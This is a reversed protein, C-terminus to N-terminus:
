SFSLLGFAHQVLPFRKSVCKVVYFKELDHCALLYESDLWYVPERLINTCHSVLQDRNMSFLKALDFTNVM